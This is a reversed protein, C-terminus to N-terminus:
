VILSWLRVSIMLAAKLELRLFITIPKLWILWEIFPKLIIELLIRKLFTSGYSNLNLLLLRLLSLARKFNFNESALFHFHVGLVNFLKDKIRHVFIELLFIELTAFFFTILTVIWLISLSWVSTLRWFVTLPKFVDKFLFKSVFVSVFVYVCFVRLRRYFFMNAFFLSLRWALLVNELLIFFLQTIIFFFWWFIWLKLLFNLQGFLFCFTNQVLIHLVFFIWGFIWAGLISCSNM